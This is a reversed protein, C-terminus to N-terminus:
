YNAPDEKPVNLTYADNIVAIYMVALAAVSSPM